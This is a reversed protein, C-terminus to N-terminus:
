AGPAGLRRDHSVSLNARLMEAVCSGPQKTGPHEQAAVGATDGAPAPGPGKESTAGVGCGADALM